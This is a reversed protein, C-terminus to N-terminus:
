NTYEGWTFVMGYDADNEDDNSSFDFVANVRIMGDKKYNADPNLVCSVKKGIVDHTTGTGQNLPHVRLEGFDLPIGVPDLGVGTTGKKYNSKLNPLLELDLDFSCALTAATINTTGDQDGILQDYRVAAKEETITLLTDQEERTKKITIATGGGAPTYTLECPGMKLIDAM